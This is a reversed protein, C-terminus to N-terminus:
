DEDGWISSSATRQNSLIQNENELQDSSKGLSSTSLLTEEANLNICRVAPSIYNKKM